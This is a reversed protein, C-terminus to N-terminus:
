RQVRLSFPLREELPLRESATQMLAISSYRLLLIYYVQQVSQLTFILCVVILVGAAVPLLPSLFHYFVSNLVDVFTIQYSCLIVSYLVLFSVVLM